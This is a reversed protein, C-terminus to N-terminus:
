LKVIKITKTQTNNQFKLIYVGSPITESPSVAISYTGNQLLGLDKKYILKGDTNLLSIQINQLDKNIFEINVVSSFPNPYVALKTISKMETGDDNLLKIQQKSNTSKYKTLYLYQANQPENSYNNWMQLEGSLVLSDDINQWQLKANKFSYSIPTNPNYHGVKKYETNEFLLNNQTLKAKFDLSETGEETWKGVLKGDEYSLELDLIAKTLFYKKSWDYKLIVGRYKGEIVNAEISNEIKVVTNILKNTSRTTKNLLHNGYTTLNPNVYEPQSTKLEQYAMNEGKALATQLWYRASDIDKTIGYGNRYSLGLYYMSNAKGNKAEQMFCKIAQEYNQSCGFGKYLFYGKAYNSKADNLSAGKSFYNFAKTFDQEGDVADKYIIGLNYNAKALGSEAAKNLWYMAEKKNTITGVGEKYLIGVKNMADINGNKALQLSQNFIIQENTLVNTAASLNNNATSTTNTVGVQQANLLATSLSLLLTFIKKKRMVDNKINKIVL